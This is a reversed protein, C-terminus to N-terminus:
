QPFPSYMDKHGKVTLSNNELIIKGLKLGSTLYVSLKDKILIITRNFSLTFQTLLM